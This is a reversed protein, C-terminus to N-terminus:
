NIFETILRDKKEWLYVHKIQPSIKKLIYIKTLTWPKPLLYILNGLIIIIRRKTVRTLEKIMQEFRPWTQPGYWPPDIITTDFTQSKLPLYHIDAKIDPRHQIDIRVDGFKSRGCCLHLTFGVCLKKLLMTEKQSWVWAERFLTVPQDRLKSKSGQKKDPM